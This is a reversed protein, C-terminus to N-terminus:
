EGWGADALTCVHQQVLEQCTEPRQWTGHMRPAISHHRALLRLLVGVTTSRTAFRLGLFALTVHRQIQGLGSNLRLGLGDATM